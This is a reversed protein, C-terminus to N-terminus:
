EVDTTIRAELDVVTFDPLYMRNYFMLCSIKSLTNKKIKYFTFEITVPGLSSKTKFIANGSVTPKM